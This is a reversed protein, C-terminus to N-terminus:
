AQYVPITNLPVLCRNGDPDVAHHGGKKPKKGCDPCGGKPPQRNVALPLTDVPIYTTQNTPM